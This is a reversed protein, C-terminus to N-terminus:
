ETKKQALDNEEKKGLEDMLYFAAKNLTVISFQGWFKDDHGCLIILMSKIKKIMEELDREDEPIKEYESLAKAMKQIDVSKDTSIFKSEINFIEGKANKIGFVIPTFAEEFIKM